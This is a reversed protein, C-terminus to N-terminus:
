LLTRLCHLASAGCFTCIVTSSCLKDAPVLQVGVTVPISLRRAGFFSVCAFAWFHIKTAAMALNLLNYPVLPSLRVLLLLKWGELEMAKDIQGYYGLDSGQHRVRMTVGAYLELAETLCTLERISLSRGIELCVSLM